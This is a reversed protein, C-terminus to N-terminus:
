VDKIVKFKYGKYLNEKKCHYNVLRSDINIYRSADNISSFCANVGNGEIHVKVPKRGAFKGSKALSKLRRMEGEKTRTNGTKLGKNWPTHGKKAKSMKLKSEDRHKYGFNSKATMVSNYEPRILNIWYQEIDVCINPETIELIEFIFNSEGYKDFSRQLYISHHNGKRFNYRHQRWRAGFTASTSGVYVKGNLKNTITYVGCKKNDTM